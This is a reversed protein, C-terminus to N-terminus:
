LVSCCLSIKEHLYKFAASILEVSSCAQISTPAARALCLRYSFLYQLLLTPCFRLMLDPPHFLFLFMRTYSPHPQLHHEWVWFSTSSWECQHRHLLWVAESFAGTACSTASPLHNIRARLLLPKAQQALALVEAFLCLQGSLNQLSSYCRPGFPLSRNYFSPKCTPTYWFCINDASLVSDAPLPRYLAKGPRSM